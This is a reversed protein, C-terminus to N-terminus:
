LEELMELTLATGKKKIKNKNQKNLGYKERLNNINDLRKEIIEEESIGEKKLNNELIKLERNVKFELQTRLAKDIIKYDNATMIPKLYLKSNDQPTEAKLEMIRRVSWIVGSLRGKDEDSFEFLKLFKEYQEVSMYINKM